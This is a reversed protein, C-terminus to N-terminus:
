KSSPASESVGATAPASSDGAASEDGVSTDGGATAATAVAEASSLSSNYLLVREGAELGSLIEVYNDNNLGVEVERRVPEGFASAVLCWYVGHEQFACQLPVFLADDRQDIRIVAKASIGPKLQLGATDKLVIEVDFRKVEAQTGQWPNGSAAISAIRAVEGHLLLGPYTDMTVMAAQGVKVKNIDAEHVEIKVQMVRLDPITMLTNGGYINGGVKVQERYWPQQPDGYILIGPCPAKMVMNEIDKRREALQQQLRKIRKEAQMVDAEKQNLRSKSRKTATELDREADKVATEKQLLTMPLTYKEFLELAREAGEKRVTAKEFDIAHQELESRKIFNQEVLKKSDEHRKNARHHETAADKIAIELNRREQPADGDRYKELEQKTRELAIGAKEIAAANEAIQIEQETKATVLSAETQVLEMELQEVHNQMSMSDVRCIVEGEEVTKGEEALFLIKGESRFQPVVKRSDKAVLTGNETITIDLEGRTVTYISSDTAPAEAALLPSFGYWCAGAAALLLVTVIVSRRKVAM